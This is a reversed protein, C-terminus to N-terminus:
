QRATDGERERDAWVAVGDVSAAAWGLAGWRRLAEEDGVTAALPLAREVAEALAGREPHRRALDAMLALQRRAEAIEARPDPVPGFHALCLTAPGVAELRALSSDGADPDADPPPLAPYLGAGPMRVGLADGALLTGTAEDLWSAHHRAHGPTALMRLARGDGLDVREGDHVARIRAAPTRDLGGYLSWRHGYVAASGAVLRGPEALHRAGREHVVVTARPFAAALIGTSGCHDLHVHTLVIWALDGPGMGHQALAARVAPASTRAGPDILAPAAGDVLYAATVGTWGGLLTDVMTIGPAVEQM